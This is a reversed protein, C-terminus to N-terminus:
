YKCALMGLYEKLYMSQLHETELDTFSKCATVTSIFRDLNTLIEEAAAVNHDWLLQHIKNKMAGAMTTRDREMLAIYPSICVSQTMSKECVQYTVGNLATQTM